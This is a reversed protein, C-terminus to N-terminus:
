YHLIYQIDATNDSTRDSYTPSQTSGRWYGGSSNAPDCNYAYMNYDNSSVSFRSFVYVNSAATALTYFERRGTNTNLIELVSNTSINSPNILANLENLLARVTKEASGTVTVTLGSVTMNKVEEIAGTLTQAETTLPTNGIEAIIADGANKVEDIAGSLTQAVTTLPTNGITSEIGSIKITHNSVVAALGTSPTNIQTDLTNAADAAATATSSASGAVSSANTAADAANKIATDINSFAGNVDTLWAPKDTGIFQPLNYNPTFNTSGM